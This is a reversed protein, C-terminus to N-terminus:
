CRSTRRAAPAPSRPRSTPRRARRRSRRGLILMHEALWGEDRAMASAIRLAFCKKGLLANGGYGSGYSWIERARPSTSSTSTRRRQVAVACGDAGPTSRCGVSHLCPCSSATTASRTSCAGQGHPDHDAHQRRRVALRDAARRHARDALRAAGHQLPHRVDHPGADCGDFLEALTAKMEDPDSWNNTPGADAERERASSRATRSGRSTAPTPAPWTPTRGSPTPSADRLHRARGAPQCLDDYEEASGDCWHIASPQSLAAMEEVWAKLGAHETPADQQPTATTETM